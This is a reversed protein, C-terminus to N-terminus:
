PLTGKVPVWVLVSVFQLRDLNVFPKLTVNEQPAGPSQSGSAVTGVPIGAPYLDGQGGSTVMVEGRTLRTGPAVFNVTLNRGTGAGTAVALQGKAGFRVGVNSSPDSALLVTSRHSSVAIVRGVLGTGSVAPMGVKVGADSGKGLQITDQFSSPSGAVVQTVIQHLNGAFALHDQQELAQAQRRYTDAQAGQAQLRTIEQHLKANQSKLSGYDAAGVFFNGIPSFVSGLASQVPAFASSLAGKAGALWRGSAGKYGLTIITVSALILVLLTFRPRASRRSRTIAM